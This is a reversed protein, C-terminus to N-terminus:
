LDNEMWNIAEHLSDSLDKLHQECKKAYNLTSKKDSTVPM